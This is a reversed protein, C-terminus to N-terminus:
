LAAGTRASTPAHGLVMLAFRAGEPGGVSETLITEREIHELVPELVKEIVRSMVEQVLIETVFAQLLDRTAAEIVQRVVRRVVYRGASRLGARLGARLAVRGGRAVAGIATGAEPLLSLAFGLYAAFQEVEVEAKTLVLEPDLLAGLLRRREKAREVDHLASVVGVVFGLPPCLISLALIGASKLEQRGAEANFLADIGLAYFVDGGFFEGIAHHVQLHIGQLAYRSGPVTASPIDDSIRSARFAWWSDAKAKDAMERNNTWMDSLVRWLEDRIAAPNTKFRNLVDPIKSMQKVLPDIGEASGRQMVLAQEIDTESWLVGRPDRIRAVGGTEVVDGAAGPMALPQGGSGLAGSLAGAAIVWATAPHLSAAQGGADAPQLGLAKAAVHRKLADRLGQLEAYDSLQSVMLREFIPAYKGFYGLRADIGERSTLLLQLLLAQCGTRFIQGVADQTDPTFHDLFHLNWSAPSDMWGGQVKPWHESSEYTRMTQLGLRHLQPVVGALHRLFQIAPSATARFSIPGLDGTGEPVPVAFAPQESTTIYASIDHARTEIAQAAHLCFRAAFYCPKIQLRFAIDDIMHRLPEADKGLASLPPEGNLPECVLDDPLHPVVPFRSGEAQAEPASPDFIFGGPVSPGGGDGPGTETGTAGGGEGGTGGAKAAGAGEGGPGGAKAAGAGEGGAGAQGGRGPRDSREKGRRVAQEVTVPLLEAEGVWHLYADDEPTFTLLQINGGVLVIVVSALPQGALQAVAHDTRSDIEQEVLRAIRAQYEGASETHHKHDVAEIRARIDDSMVQDMLARLGARDRVLSRYVMGRVAPPESPAEQFEWGKHGRRYVRGSFHTFTFGSWPKGSVNVQWVLQGHADRVHAILAQPRGPPFPGYQRVAEQALERLHALVNGSPKVVWRHTVTPGARLVLPKDFNFEQTGGTDYAPLQYTELRERWRERDLPEAPNPPLPPAADPNAAPDLRAAAVADQVVGRLREEFARRTARPVQDLAAGSWRFTPDHPLAALYGGRPELVERRSRELARGLAAALAAEVDDPRDSVTRVDLRLRCPVSAAVPM